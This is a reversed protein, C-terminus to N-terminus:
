LAVEFPVAAVKSNQESYRCSSSTVAMDGQILIDGLENTSHEDLRMEINELCSILHDQDDITWLTGSMIGEELTYNGLVRMANTLIEQGNENDNLNSYLKAETTSAFSNQHRRSLHYKISDLVKHVYFGCQQNFKANNVRKISTVILGGLHPHGPMRAHVWSTAGLDRLSVGDKDRVDLHGTDM